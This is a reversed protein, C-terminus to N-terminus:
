PAIYYIDLQFNELGSVCKSSPQSDTPLAPFWGKLTFGHNSSPTKAWKAVIPTVDVQLTGYTNPTISPNGGPLTGAVWHDNDIMSSWSQGAAGISVICAAPATAASAGAEYAQYPQSYRLIAKQIYAGPPIETPMGFKVGGQYYEDMFGYALGIEADKECIRAGVFVQGPQTGFGPMGKAPPSAHLVEAQTYGCRATADGDRLIDETTLWGDVKTLTILKVKELIKHGPCYIAMESPAVTADSVYAQVGYCKPGLSLGTFWAKLEAPAPDAILTSAKTYPDIESIRYGSIKNYWNCGPSGTWCTKPAWEWILVMSTKVKSSFQKECITEIMYSGGGHAKCDAKSSPERVLFPRPVVAEDQKVFKDPEIPPVKPVGTMEFGGGDIKIQDPPQVADFQTQGQGLYNLVGGLWGWCQAQIVVQKVAQSVQTFLNDSGPFFNFPEKPMKEWVGDGGSAYCYSKDVPQTFKINWSISILLPGVGPVKPQGIGQVPGGGANEVPVKVPQGGPLPQSPNLKPNTGAMQEPSVGFGAGIQGLSQGDNAFAQILEDGSFVSVSVPQSEGVQGNADTARATFNHLGVPWAQWTWSAEEPSDTVTGLSQDDLFLEATSISAPGFAQLSVTVFAGAKVEDGASPTLLQVFVPSGFSTRPEFPSGLLWWWGGGIIVVALILVGALLCSWFPKRKKM